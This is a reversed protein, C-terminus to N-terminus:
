SNKNFVGLFSNDDPNDYNNLSLKNILEDLNTDLIRDNIPPIAAFFPMGAESAFIEIDSDSILSKNLVVKQGKLLNFANNNSAMLKNLKLISPEVLYIIDNCFSDYDNNNLDILIIDKNCSNITNEVISGDISRLDNDQFYSLDNNGVEIGLVSKNYKKVLVTKLMYILTTTGAHETVNRIGLIFKNNYNNVNLSNNKIDNFMNNSVNDYSSNFNQNPFVNNVDQYNNFSNENFNQNNIISENAFDNNENSYDDYEDNNYDNDFDNNPMLDNSFQNSDQNNDMIDNSVQNPYNNNIGQYNLNNNNFEDNSEFSQFQNNFPQQNSQNSFSNNMMDANNYMDKNQNMMQNFGDNYNNDLLYKVDDYTNSFQIFKVIDNINSSFNYIGLEILLTLFNRPPEPKPPLLIILKEAGIGTSLKKLVEPNSFDVISTADVIMKTFFYNKFNNIIEEVNFLGNLDKIADINANDLVNKQKNSVIVNM